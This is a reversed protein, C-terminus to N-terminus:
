FQAREKSIKNYALFSWLHTLRYYYHIVAGLFIITLIFLIMQSQEFQEELLVQLVYVLNFYLEAAFVISFMIISKYFDTASFMIASYLGWVKAMVNLVYEMKNPIAGEELQNQM